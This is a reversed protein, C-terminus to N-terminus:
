IHILSLGKGEVDGTDEGIIDGFQGSIGLPDVPAYISDPPLPAAGSFQVYYIYNDLMVNIMRLFSAEPDTNHLYIKHLEDPALIMTSLRPTGSPVTSNDVTTTDDTPLMDEPNYDNGPISTDTGTGTNDEGIIQGFEDFEKESM